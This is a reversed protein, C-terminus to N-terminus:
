GPTSDRAAFRGVVDLPERLAFPKALVDDAGIDAAREGAHEAATAVVIPLSCGYLVRLERACEWGDMVPMMMDLLVLSPRKCAVAALAQQGNEVRSATYGAMQLVRIVVDAMDPDDEVVLVEFEGSM